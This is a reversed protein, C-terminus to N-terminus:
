PDKDDDIRAGDHSQICEIGRGRTKDFWTEDGGVRTEDIQMEVLGPRTLGHWPGVLSSDSLKFHM